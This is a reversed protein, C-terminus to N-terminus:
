TLQHQSVGDVACTGLNLDRPASFHPLRRMSLAPYHLLIKRDQLRLVTSYYAHLHRTTYAHSQIPRSQTVVSGTWRYNPLNSAISRLGSFTIEFWIRLATQASPGLGHKLPLESSM